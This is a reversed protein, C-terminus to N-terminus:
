LASWYDIIVICENCRSWCLTKSNNKPSAESQISGLKIQSNPQGFLILSGIGEKWRYILVM